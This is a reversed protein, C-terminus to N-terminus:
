TFHVKYLLFQGSFLCISMKFQSQESPDYNISLVITQSIINFHM